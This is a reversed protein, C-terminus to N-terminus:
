RRPRWEQEEVGLRANLHRALTFLLDSLRNLYPLVGEPVAGAGEAVTAVRREARRCVTRAVHAVAAARSGGPLIFSRLEPLMGDLEDIWSELPAPDWGSGALDLKGEVDALASGIVFLAEQVEHLRQAVGPPLAECALLGLISSLEDVTGYAEIRAHDKGVRGGSFLSTEGRDGTRTYIKAVGADYV